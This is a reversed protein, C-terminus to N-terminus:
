REREKGGMGLTPVWAGKGEGMEEQIRWPHSLGMAHGSEIEGEGEEEATAAAAAAAAAAISISLLLLLV